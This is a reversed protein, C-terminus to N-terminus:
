RVSLINLDCYFNELNAFINFHALKLDFKMRCFAKSQILLFVLSNEHRLRKLSITNLPIGVCQYNHVFEFYSQSRRLAFPKMKLEILFCLLNNM